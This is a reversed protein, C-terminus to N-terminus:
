RVLLVFLWENQQACHQIFASFSFFFCVCTSTSQSVTKVIPDYSWPTRKARHTHSLPPKHISHNNHKLAFTIYFQSFTVWRGFLIHTHTATCTKPEQARLLFWNPDHIFVGCNRYFTRKHVIRYICIYYYHHHYDYFIQMSNDLTWQSASSSMEDTQSHTQRETHKSSHTGQKRTVKSIGEWVGKMKM